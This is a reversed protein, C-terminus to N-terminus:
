FPFLQEINGDKMFMVEKLTPIEWDRFQTKLADISGTWDNLNILVRAAQNETKGKVTSYINRIPTTAKPTFCDFPKGEVLYDPYKGPLLGYTNSPGEPPHEVDFGKDALLDAAEHEGEIPRPDNADPAKRYEMGGPLSGTPKSPKVRNAYGITGRPSKALANPARTFIQEM